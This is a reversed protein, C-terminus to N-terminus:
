EEESSDSEANDKMKQLADLVETDIFAMHEDEPFGFMDAAVERKLYVIDGTRHADQPQIHDTGDKKTTVTSKSPDMVVLAIFGDAFKEEVEPAYGWGTVTHRDFREKLRKDLLIANTDYTKGTVLCQKQEMTTFSKSM